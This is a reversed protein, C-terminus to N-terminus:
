ITHSGGHGSARAEHLLRWPPSSRVPHRDVLWYFDEGADDGVGGAPDEERAAGFAAVEGAGPFERAALALRALGRLGRKGALQPFFEADLDVDALRQDRHRLGVRVLADAQVHAMDSAEAARWAAVLALGQRPNRWVLQGPIGHRGGVTGHDRRQQM